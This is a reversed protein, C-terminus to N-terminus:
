INVMKNVLLFKEKFGVSVCIFVLILVDVLVICEQGGHSSERSWNGLFPNVKCFIPQGLVDVVSVESVLILHRVMNSVGIHPILRVM